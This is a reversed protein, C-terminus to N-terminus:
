NGFLIPKLALVALAVVFVLLALALLSTAVLLFGTLKSVERLSRAPVQAGAVHKEFLAINMTNSKWGADLIDGLVPVSGVLTDVAINGIMRILTFAPAGARAAALVIYGSLIAGAFDGVFPVLGLIPDLGIRRKTGPITISSDLLAALSRARALSRNAPAELATLGGTREPM